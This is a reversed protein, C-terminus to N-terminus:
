ESMLSFPFCENIKIVTKIRTVFKTFQGSNVQLRNTLGVSQLFKKYPLLFDWIILFLGLSHKWTKTQIWYGCSFGKLLLCWPIRMSYSCSLSVCKWYFSAKREGGGLRRIGLLYWSFLLNNPNRYSSKAPKEYKNLSYSVIHIQTKGRERQSSFHTIQERLLYKNNTSWVHILYIIVVVNTLYSKFQKSYIM